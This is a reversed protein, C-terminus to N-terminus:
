TQNKQKLKEIEGAITLQRAKLEKSTKISSSQKYKVNDRSSENRGLSNKPKSHKQSM